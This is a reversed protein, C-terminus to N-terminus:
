WTIGASKSLIIFADETDICGNRNIDGIFLEEETPSAELSAALRLAKRADETTIGTKGDIDGFNDVTRDLEIIYVPANCDIAYKVGASNNNCIIKVPHSSATEEKERFAFANKGISTVTQPITVETLSTCNEFAYMGIKLAGNGFTLTTLATLNSFSSTGISKLSDPFSLTTIATCEAFAYDGVTELTNSFQVFELASCKWFAYKGITKLANGCFLDTLSSCGLFAYAGVYEVNRLNIGTLSTCMDFAYDAISKINEGLIVTRLNTCGYFASNGISTVSDPISVTNIKTKQKFTNAAIQTVTLGNIQLPIIVETEYFDRYSTITCTGNGNDTYIFGDYNLAHAATLSLTILLIALFVSLIKKM